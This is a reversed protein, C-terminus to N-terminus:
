EVSASARAFIGSCSVREIAAFMRVHQRRFRVEHLGGAIPQHGDERGIHKGIHLDRPSRMRVVDPVHAIGTAEAAVIAIVGCLIALRMVCSQAAQWLRSATSSALGM